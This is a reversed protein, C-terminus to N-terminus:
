NLTEADDETEIRTRKWVDLAVNEVEEITIDDGAISVSVDEIQITILM